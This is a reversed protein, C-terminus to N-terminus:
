ITSVSPKRMSLGCAIGVLLWCVMDWPLYVEVAYNQISAMIYTAGISGAELLFVLMISFVIVKWRGPKRTSLIIIFSSVLEVLATFANWSISAILPICWGGQMKEMFELYMRVGKPVGFDVCFFIASQMRIYCVRLCVLAVIILLLTRVILLAKMKM